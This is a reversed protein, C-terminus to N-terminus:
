KAQATNFNMKKTLSSTHPLRKGRMMQRNAGCKQIHTRYFYSLCCATLSAHHSIMSMDLTVLQGCDVGIEPWDLLPQLKLPALLFSATVAFHIIM